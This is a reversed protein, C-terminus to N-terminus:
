YSWRRARGYDGTRHSRREGAGFLRHLVSRPASARNDGSKTYNVAQGGWNHDLAGAASGTYKYMAAEPHLRGCRGRHAVDGASLSASAIQRNTHPRRARTVIKLRGSDAPLIHAPIRPGAVDLGALVTRPRCPRSCSPRPLTVPLSSLAPDGQQGPAPRAAHNKACFGRAEMRPPWVNILLVYNRIRLWHSRLAILQGHGATTVASRPAPRPRRQAGATSPAARAPRIRTRRPTRVSPFQLLRAPFRLDGSPRPPACPM